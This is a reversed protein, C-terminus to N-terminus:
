VELSSIKMIAEAMDVKGNQVEDILRLLRNEDDSPATEITQSANKDILSCLGAITPYSFIDSLSIIAPYKSDLEYHMQSVLFSNGGLDFFNQHPGVERQDLLRRWIDAVILETQSVNSETVSSKDDVEELSLVALGKRDIKGNPTMLLEDVKKFKAPIMYDPLRSSAFLKLEAPSVEMMETYFTVLKKREYDGVALVVAERIAPHQKLVTEIEGIEIRHGRVKVMGDKRGLWEITGEERYRGVDGTKYLLEDPFLDSTIYVYQTKEQDRYYGKTVSEGRIYLEGPMNIGCVNGDSDLIVVSNNSIPLGIPLTLLAEEEGKLKYSTVWITTETPGYMNILEANSFAPRMRKSLEPSWSEGGLMVIRVSPFIMGGTDKRTSAYLMLQSMLTPVSHWISIQHSQIYEALLSADGVTTDSLIHVEAGSLLGAFIEFVSIDFSISTVVMMRDSSGISFEKIAWNIFNSVNRHSVMVGKPLGTSGSTYMVYMLDVTTHTKISLNEWSVDTYEDLSYVKDWPGEANGKGKLLILERFKQNLKALNDYHKSDSVIIRIGSHEIMYKLRDPPYDPSLPVYAAGAKMIGLIGVIMWQNRGMMLGIPENAKVGQALLLNALRNSQKNLDGFTMHEGSCVIAVAEPDKDAQMEFWRDITPHTDSEMPGKFLQLLEREMESPLLQYSAILAYPKEILQELLNFFYSSLRRIGMESFLQSSYEIRVEIGQERERCLFALDFLSSKDSEQFNDFYQFMASFIPNRSTDREPNLETVLQDFPYKSHQYVEKCKLKVLDLLEHFTIGQHFRTRICIMNMFLGIMNETEKQDRGAIPFGVIIDNDGSWKHLLLFYSSLMLMHMTAGQSKAYSKLRDSLSKKINFIQFSGEYSQKLPRPYDTPLNLVPLPKQLEKLWYERAQEADQSYLWKQQWQIWDPYKWAPPPLELEKGAELSVYYKQLEKFFIQMSWGDTILHHMVVSVSYRAEGLKYAHLRIFPKSFDFIRQQEEELLENLRDEQNEFCMLDTIDMPPEYAPLIVQKPKGENELIITRFAEHRQIIIKMSQYYLALDRESSISFVLPLNYAILDPVLKQLFWIRKQAASLDYQLTPVDLLSFEQAPNPLTPTKQEHDLFESFASVSLYQFLDGISADKDLSENIRNVVKIALLSDGGMDYFSDHVDIQELDLMEAWIQAVKKETESYIGDENGIIKIPSIVPLLAESNSNRNIKNGEVYMKLEDSLQFPAYELRSAAYGLNIEGILIRSTNLQKTLVTNLREIGEAMSLSKFFSDETAGYRHAMGAEKWAPWNISVATIGQKTLYGSFSDLVCNAANYDSQGAGSFVTEMSSFLVFFKLPDQKTFQHLLLTGHVKPSLVQKFVSEEKHVIFGDGALGACHFIGRIPGLDTRLKELTKSLIVENTIDCELWHIESGSAKIRQLALMKREKELPDNEASLLNRSLLVIKLHNMKSMYEAIELGIGGSGGTIVYVESEEFVQRELKPKLRAFDLREVYRKGERYSCKKDTSHHQIERMIVKATFEDVRDIDISRCVFNSYELGIVQGLGFMAANEPFVMEEGATVQQVLQSILIIDVHNKIRSDMLAKSLYFLSYGGQSLRGELEDVTESPKGDRDVSALHIIQSITGLKEISDLLSGYDSQTSGISFKFDSHCAFADNLEVRVVARGMQEFQVALTEGIGASDQIIVVIGESIGSDIISEDLILDQQVWDIQYFTPVELLTVDSANVRKIAFDEIRALVKGQTDLINVVFHHVDSKSVKKSKYLVQTVCTEPLSEYITLSGYSFAVYNNAGDEESPILLTGIGTARDLLAPHLVYDKVEARYLPHLDLLAQAETQNVKLSKVMQFRPGFAIFDQEFLVDLEKEYFIRSYEFNEIQVPERIESISEAMEIRGVAYVIPSESHESISSVDILRIKLRKSDDWEVEVHIVKEEDRDIALPSLFYVDKLVRYAIGAVERGAELMMEIMASGPLVCTDSIMHERLEWHKAGSLTTEFVTTQPIRSVWRDLLPQNILGNSRIPHTLASTKLWFRRRDFPYTPLRLTRYEKIPYLLSWDVDAGAVYESCIKLLLEGEGEVWGENSISGISKILDNVRRSLQIKTEEKIAGFKEGELDVIVKHYGAFFVENNELSRDFLTEEARKLQKLLDQVSQVTAAVRYAYHARGVSATSCLDELSIDRNKNILQIYKRVLLRFSRETKASLVFIFPQRLKEMFESKNDDEEVYEKLVIHCNTGNFGFSSVGARLPQKDSNIWDTLKDIVYVPTECFPIHPNPENFQLTPPLKKNQMCLIVKIVSALGSAGVTHGINTKVSGIGCFQKKSTFRRFAQTIGKIEIPDGLKTGTGHAEIYSIEEPNIKAMKWAREIVDGQADPNPATLGNSMGDNNVASGSIVGLIHRKENIAREVPMLVLVGFGESFVTGEASKDFASIKGLSSDYMMADGVPFLKTSVGGVLAFELGDHRIAQCAHHLAVLSSSCATDVVLSPGKLNLMYSIRSALISTHSGTLTLEDHETVLKIYEMSSNTEMGVYVGTKTGKLQEPGIGSDEIAEWVTELFIRHNPDMSQAERNSIRFFSADFQDVEKLYGGINYQQGPQIFPDTDTRRGEPFTDVTSIGNKILSWYEDANNAGPLRCAMGVIAIDQSLQKPTSPQVLLEKLLGKAQDPSLKKEAVQGYIYKKVLEM